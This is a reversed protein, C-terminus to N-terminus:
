KMPFSLMTKWATIQGHWSIPYPPSLRGVSMGAFWNTVKLPSLAEALRPTPRGIPQYVSRSSGSARRYASVDTSGSCLSVSRESSWIISRILESSTAVQPLRTFRTSDIVAREHSPDTGAGPSRVSASRASSSAM